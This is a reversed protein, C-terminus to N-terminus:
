CRHLMEALDQLSVDVSASKFYLLLGKSKIICTRLVNRVTIVLETTSDVVVKQPKYVFSKIRVVTLCNGSIVQGQSNILTTILSLSPHLHVEIHEQVM